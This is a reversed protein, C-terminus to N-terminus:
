SQLHLGSATLEYVKHCVEELYKRDHSVSIIAGGFDALTQRIVPGSLPSFNRTPEDLVLVNVGKLVMDLFLLKAKQGGSLAHIPSAMEGHTFKMSGMFTRAKTMSDKHGSPSLFDVPTATYDLAEAYDQPMFYPAIDSRNQLSKWIERLLTSKGMGNRGVIGIHQGGMIRLSLNKALIKGDICLAPLQFDLITKSRPLTISEDFDALIAEEMQPIDLFNDEQRHLRKEQSKVSKMKKKLLRGGSADQRSIARQEHDVRNYVQAWKEMQATHDSRQKRAVQMQKDFSLARSQKYELYPCHAITIKCKTKRVLQEIHLIVNATNEILTEDHSVFLVPLRCRNIFGELWTLTDIDIDNTPEDLLLIDPEDMLIRALQIKVKEGGSLTQILQESFLFEPPLCLENFLQTHMYIEYDAFYDQVSRTLHAPDIAQPLYGTRGKKVVQGSCICYGAANDEDHIWKLLTSKGNGEEGIIVAKDGRNLTFNLDEILTRADRTLSISVQNLELM